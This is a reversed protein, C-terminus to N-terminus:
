NNKKSLKAFISDLTKREYRIEQLGWSKRVSVQVIANSLDPNGDFVIRIRKADIKEVDIVGNMDRIEHEAPLHSLTLLLRDPTEINRFEEITGNFILRGSEMMLVHSCMLDVESLIHTSFLVAHERAIEAILRRVEVIQNPDLGITPEDLVVLKPQHIIAQAIGVRQRYGGSLNKILRNSFHTIQVKEKVRNVAANVAHKDMLRLRACHKLYEDVTLDLYLPATQPLFGIQMRAKEPQKQLDINHIFARGKKPNLVGCLINMLTSKGAGNSGLLAVVGQSAIKLNIDQNAWTKGNNYSHCLGEVDVIHM